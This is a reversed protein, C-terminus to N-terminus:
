APPPSKPPRVEGEVIGGTTGVEGELISAEGVTGELTGHGGLDLDRLSV